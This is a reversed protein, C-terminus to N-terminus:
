PNYPTYSFPFKRFEEWKSNYDKDFYDPFSLTYKGLVKNLDTIDDEKIWLGEYIDMCVKLFPKRSSERAHEWLQNLAEDFDVTYICYSAKKSNKKHQNVQAIIAQPKGESKTLGIWYKFVGKYDNEHITCGRYGSVSQEVLLAKGHELNICQTKRDNVYQKYKEKTFYPRYIGM